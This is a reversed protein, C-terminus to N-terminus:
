HSDCHLDILENLWWLQSLPLTVKGIKHEYGWIEKFEWEYEGVIKRNM